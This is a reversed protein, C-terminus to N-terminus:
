IQIKAPQVIFIFAYEAIRQANRQSAMADKINKFCHADEPKLAINIKTDLPKVESVYGYTRNIDDIYIIYSMEKNAVTYGRNVLYNFYGLLYESLYDGAEAPNGFLCRVLAEQGTKVQGLLVPSVEFEPYLRKINHVTSTIASDNPRLYTKAKLADTTIKVKHGRMDISDFFGQCNTLPNWCFIVTESSRLDTGNYINHTNM